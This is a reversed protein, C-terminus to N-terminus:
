VQAVTMRGVFGVEGGPCWLENSQGGFNLVPKAPMKGRLNRLKRAAGAAADARSAHFPPNCMSAAFADGPKVIGDFIAAASSQLRLEIRGAFGPNAAVIDRAWAISAPVIDSGVFSWGYESVGLIPYVCNAGTGIDLIATEGGSPIRGPSRQGLLDALHHVYEARGPIPPCLAGSPLSWASVGYHHSLLARNLTTVAAPDAFDITDTGAPSPRIFKALDPCARSLAPFDYGSAHRNRPHLGPKLSTKQNSSLASSFLPCQRAFRFAQVSSM